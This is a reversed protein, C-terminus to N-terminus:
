SGDGVMAVTRGVRQLARVIRVKQSPTVRAFVVLDDLRADLEADSLQSLEAGSMVGPEAALGLEVAIAQATSPHDGTIMVTRVGAQRIASLAQRATPRVPDRLAIFGVFTLDELISPDVSGEG